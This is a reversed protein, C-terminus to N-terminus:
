STCSYLDWTNRTVFLQTVRKQWPQRDRPNLYGNLLNKDYAVQYCIIFEAGTRPILGIVGAVTVGPLVRVFLM